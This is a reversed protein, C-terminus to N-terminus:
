LEKRQFIAWAGVPLFCACAMAILFAPWQDGSSELRMLSAAWEAASVPVYRGADPIILLAGLFILTGLALGGAAIGTRVLASWFLAISGIFILYGGTAAASAAFRLLGGDGFLILVLLYVVLGSALIALMMAAAFVVIKAAVFAGRTVPKHLTMAATGSEREGSISGMMVMIALLTGVFSGVFGIFFGLIGRADDADRHHDQVEAVIAAVVVPLIALVLFIAVMALFKRSRSQEMVEKRLLVTFGKM